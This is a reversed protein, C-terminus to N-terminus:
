VRLSFPCLAIYESINTSLHQQVYLLRSDPQKLDYPIPVGVSGLGREKTDSPQANPRLAKKRSM